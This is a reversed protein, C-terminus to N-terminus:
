RILKSQTDTVKTKSKSKMTFHCWPAGKCRKMNCFTKSINTRRRIRIVLIRSDLKLQLLVPMKMKMPSLLVSTSIMTKNLSKPPLRTSDMTITSVAKNLAEKVLLKSTLHRNTMQNQRRGKKIKRLTKTRTYSSSPLVRKIMSTM